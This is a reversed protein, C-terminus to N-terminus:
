RKGQRWDWPAIYTGSFMGAGQGRAERFLQMYYNKSEPTDPLAHGQGIMEAGLDLSGLACKASVKPFEGGRPNCTIVQDKLFKRLHDTAANGCAWPKGKRHCIQEPELADIGWIQINTGAIVILDANVVTATGSLPAGVASSPPTVLLLSLLFASVLSTDFVVAGLRSWHIRNLVTPHQQQMFLGYGPESLLYM